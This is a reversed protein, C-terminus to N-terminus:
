TVTHPHIISLSLKVFTLLYRGQLFLYTPFKNQSKSPMILLFYGRINTMELLYFLYFHIKYLNRWERLIM